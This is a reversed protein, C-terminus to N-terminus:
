RKYGLFLYLPDKHNEARFTSLLYWRTAIKTKEAAGTEVPDPPKKFLRLYGPVLSVGM